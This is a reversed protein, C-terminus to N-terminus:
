LYGILRTLATLDFAVIHVNPFYKMLTISSIPLYLYLSSPM